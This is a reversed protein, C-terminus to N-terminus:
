SHLKQTSPQFQKQKYIIRLHLLISNEASIAHNSKELADQRQFNVLTGYSSIKILMPFSAMFQKFEVHKNNEIRGNGQGTKLTVHVHWVHPMKM